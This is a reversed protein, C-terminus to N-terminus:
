IADQWYPPGVQRVFAVQKGDPSFKPREGGIDTTYPAPTQGPVVVLGGFQVFVLDGNKPLATTAAGAPVATMVTLGAAVAVALRRALKVNRGWM